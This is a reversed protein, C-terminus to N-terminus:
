AQCGCHNHVDYRVRHGCVESILAQQYLDGAQEYFSGIQADVEAQAVVKDVEVHINFSAPAVPTPVPQKATKRADLNSQAARLHKCEVTHDHELGCKCTCELRRTQKNWHVIYSDNM